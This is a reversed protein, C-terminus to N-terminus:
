WTKRVVATKTISDHWPLYFFLASLMEFPIFRCLTRALAHNYTFPTGDQTIAVTDTIIKGLTRGRTSGEFLLYYFFTVALSVYMSARLAEMDLNRLNVVKYLIHDHYKAGLTLYAIGFNLANIIVGIAVQDVIFNAFRTLKSVPDVYNMEEREERLIEKEEQQEMM